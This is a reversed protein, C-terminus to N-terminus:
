LPNTRPKNGSRPYEIPTPKSKKIIILSRKNDTDLINYKIVKKIEGGLAKLAPKAGNLEEEIEGGKYIVATGGLKLFPLLYEALTALPALARATVTDFYERYKLKAADEARIHVAKAKLNLSSIIHNLFTVKKNVSEIFTLEINPNVIALPIGPFGAGSGVDCVKGTIYLAGELSDAYHKIIVEEKDTIATLNFKENWSNLEEYYFAFASLATKIQEENLQAMYKKLREM